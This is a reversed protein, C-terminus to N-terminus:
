RCPSVCLRPGAPWIDEDPAEDRVPKGLFSSNEEFRNRDGAVFQSSQLLSDTKRQRSSTSCSTTFRQQVLHCVVCLCSCLSNRVCPFVLETEETQRNPQHKMLNVASALFRLRPLVGKDEEEHKM